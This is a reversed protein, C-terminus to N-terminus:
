EFAQRSSFWLYFGAIGFALMVMLFAYRERYLPGLNPFALAYVLVMLLCFFLMSWFSASKWFCRCLPVLFPLFLYVLSMELGCIRRKLAGGPSTGEQFWHRPFPALFGVILARPIYRVIDSASHFTVDWDINGMADPDIFRYMERVEALGRLKSEAFDPVWWTDYWPYTPPKELPKELSVIGQLGFVALWVFLLPIWFSGRKRWAFVAVASLLLALVFSLFWLIEVAYPRVVWITLAGSLVLGLSLWLSRLHQEDIQLLREWGWLFLLVGLAFIGDKHIQTYWNMASPFFVFPLASICAIKADRVIDRMLYFLVLGGFAHVCANFPLLVWPKPIFLFYFIAAIGAPAQGEPRLEWAGIGEAHMREALRKALEHFYLWDGGKLLGEGAHISPFLYPLLVFQVLFGVLLPYVFFLFWIKAPSTCSNALSRLWEKM